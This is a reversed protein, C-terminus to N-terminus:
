LFDYYYTFSLRVGNEQTYYTWVGKKRKKKQGMKGCARRWHSKM